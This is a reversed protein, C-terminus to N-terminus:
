VEPLLDNMYSGFLDVTEPFLESSFKLYKVTEDLRDHGLYISLFPIADNLQRGAHEAKSFSKFAFVHRLCHLCPGREYKCYNDTRIGADKLLKTFKRSISKESIHEDNMSSPFLWGSSNPALGMVMVYKTLIDAMAPSMPVLRHKDGKTNILRLIGNELDVDQMIIRVTEGLRLGCSYLLRIIIPFEIVLWPDAKKDSVVLRDARNFILAIEDDSFIYPMYDDHVKPIIPIFITEGSLALHKLFQRVVIIENEVSGSKGTVTRVWNNIFLETIEGPSFIHDFLYQDFRRLYCLEHM